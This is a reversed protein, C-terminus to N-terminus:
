ASRLRLGARRLRRQHQLVDRTSEGLLAEHSDKVLLAESVAVVEDVHREVPAPNSGVLAKNEDVEDLPSGFFKLSGEMAGREGIGRNTPLSADDSPSM